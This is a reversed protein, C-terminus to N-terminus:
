FQWRFQGSVGVSDLQDGYRADIRAGASIQRGRSKPGLVKIWNAGVSIEGYAGLNESELEQAVFSDGALLLFVDVGGAGQLLQKGLLQGINLAGCPRNIQIRDMFDGGKHVWLGLDMEKRFPKGTNNELIGGTM